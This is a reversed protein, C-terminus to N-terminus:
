KELIIVRAQTRLMPQENCEDLFVRSVWDWGKGPSKFTCGPNDVVPCPLIM